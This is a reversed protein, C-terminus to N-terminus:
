HAHKAAWLTHERSITEETDKVLGGLVDEQDAIRIREKLLLLDHAVLDYTKTLEQHQRLQNWATCAIAIITLFAVFDPLDPMAIQILAFLAAITQVGLTIWYWLTAKRNNEESKSAYWVLQNQVRERLYVDKRGELPLSRVTRMTDPILHSETLLETKVRFADFSQIM